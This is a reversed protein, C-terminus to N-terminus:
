FGKIQEVGSPPLSKKGSPLLKGTLSFRGGHGTSEGTDEKDNSEQRSAGFLL